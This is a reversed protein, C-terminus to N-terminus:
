LTGGGWDLWISWTVGLFGLGEAKCDLHKSREATDELQSRKGASWSTHGFAWRGNRCPYGAPVEFSIHGISLELKTGALEVRSFIPLLGGSFDLSQRSKCRFFLFFHGSPVKLQLPLHYECCSQPQGHEKEWGM